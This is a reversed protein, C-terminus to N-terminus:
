LKVLITGGGKQLCFLPIPKAIDKGIRRRRM